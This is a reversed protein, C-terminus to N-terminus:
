AELKRKLPKPQPASTPQPPNLYDATDNILVQPPQSAEVYLMMGTKEDMGHYVFENSEMVVVNQQDLPEGGMASGADIAFVRPLRIVPQFTNPQEFERTFGEANRLLVMRRAGARQLYQAANGLAAESELAKRGGLTALSSFLGGRSMTNNAM